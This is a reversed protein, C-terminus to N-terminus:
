QLPTTRRSLKKIAQPLMRLLPWLVTALNSPLIHLLHPDESPPLRLTPKKWPSPQCPRATTTQRAWKHRTAWVHTLCLQPAQALHSLWLLPFSINRSPPSPTSPCSFVTWMSSPRLLHLPLLERSDVPVLLFSDAFFDILPSNFDTPVSRSAELVSAPVPTQLQNEIQINSRKARAPASGFFSGSASASESASASASSPQPLNAIGQQYAEQMAAIDVDNDRKALGSIGQLYADEMAQVDVMVSSSAAAASKSASSPAPLNEIGQAYASEMANIDIMPSPAASNEAASSASPAVPSAMVLRVVDNIDQGLQSALASPSDNEAAVDNKVFQQTSDDRDSTSKLGKLLRALPSLAEESDRKVVKLAAGNRKTM